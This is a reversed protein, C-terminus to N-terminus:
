FYKWHPIRWGALFCLIIAVAVDEEATCVGPATLSWCPDASILWAYNVEQKSVKM